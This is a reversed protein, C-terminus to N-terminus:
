KARAWEARVKQWDVTSTSGPPSPVPGLQQHFLEDLGSGSALHLAVRAGSSTGLFMDYSRLDVGTAAAGVILGVEWASAAFGGGGLVLARRKASLPREGHWWCLGRKEQQQM